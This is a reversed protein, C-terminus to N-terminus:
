LTGTGECLIAQGGEGVSCSWELDPAFSGTALFAVECDYAFGQFVGSTEYVGSADVAGPVLLAGYTADCGWVIDCGEQSVSCQDGDSLIEQCLDPSSAALTLSYNGQVDPCAPGGNSEDGSPDPGTADGAASGDGGCAADDISRCLGPDGPESSRLDCWQGAGCNLTDLCGPVCQLLGSETCREGAECVMAGCQTRGDGDNPVCM